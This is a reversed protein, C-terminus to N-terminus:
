FNKNDQKGDKSFAPAFDTVVIASKANFNQFFRM